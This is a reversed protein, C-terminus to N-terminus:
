TRVGSLTATLSGRRLLLQLSGTSQLYRRNTDFTHEWTHLAALLKRAISSHQFRAGSAVEAEPSQM